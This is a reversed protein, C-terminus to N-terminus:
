SACGLTPLHVGNRRSVNPSFSGRRVHLQVRGTCICRPAGSDWSVSFPPDFHAPDEKWGILSSRRRGALAPVALHAFDLFGTGHTLHPLHRSVSPRFVHICVLLSPEWEMRPLCGCRRNYMCLFLATILLFPCISTVLLVLLGYANPRPSVQQFWLIPLTDAVRRYLNKQCSSRM